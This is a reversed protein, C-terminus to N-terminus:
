TLDEALDPPLQGPVVPRDAPPLYRPCACGLVNCAGRASTREEGVEWSERAPLEHDNGPHRCRERACPPLMLRAPSM